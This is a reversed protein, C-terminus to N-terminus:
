KGAKWETYMVLAILLAMGTLVGGGFLLVWEPIYITM